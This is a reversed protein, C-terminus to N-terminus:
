TQPRRRQIQQDSHKHQASHASVNITQLQVFGRM